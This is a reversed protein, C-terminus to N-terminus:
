CPVLEHMRNLTRICNSKGCGTPGIIATEANTKLSISVDKLAQKSGFWANLNVSRMKVNDLKQTV